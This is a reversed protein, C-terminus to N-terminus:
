VPSIFVCSHKIFESDICTLCNYGISASFMAICNKSAIHMIYQNTYICTFIDATLKYSRIHNKKRKRNKHVLFEQKKRKKLEDQLSYRRNGQISMAMCIFTSMNKVDAHTGIHECIGVVASTNLM